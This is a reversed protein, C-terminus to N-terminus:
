WDKNKSSLAAQEASICCCGIKYDENFINKFQQKSKRQIGKFHFTLSISMIHKFPQGNM